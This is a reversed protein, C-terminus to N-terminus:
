IERNSYASIPTLNGQFVSSAILRLSKLHNIRKFVTYQGALLPEINQMRGDLPSSFPIQQLGSTTNQTKAIYLAVWPILKIYSEHKVRESNVTTKEFVPSYKQALTSVDNFQKCKM